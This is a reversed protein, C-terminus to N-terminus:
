DPNFSILLMAMMNDYSPSYTVDCFFPEPLFAPMQYYKAEDTITYTQDQLPVSPDLIISSPITCDTNIV